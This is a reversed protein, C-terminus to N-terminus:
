WFKFSLIFKGESNSKPIDIINCYILIAVILSAAAAVFFLVGGVIFGLFLYINWDKLLM